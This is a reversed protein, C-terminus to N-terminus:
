KLIDTQHATRAMAATVQKEEFLRNQRDVESEIIAKDNQKLWDEEKKKAQKLMIDAERNAYVNKLLNIRAQDERRWQQERADWQKANEEAVLDDIMKEYAKKDAQGQNYHKQLEIIERKRAEKEAEELRKLEAERSLAKALLAKDRQKEVENAMERLEKEQANHKILELNRERNLLFKQREAEKEKEDEVVWQQKLM